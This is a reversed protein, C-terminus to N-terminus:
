FSIEFARASKGSRGTSKFSEINQPTTNPDHTGPSAGTPEITLRYSAENLFPPTPNAGSFQSGASACLTNFNTTDWGLPVIHASNNLINNAPDGCRFVRFLGRELGTDAAFIARASDVARSVQSLQYVMLLGATVASGLFVASLIIVMLLM